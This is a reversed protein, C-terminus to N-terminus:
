PAVAQRAEVVKKAYGKSSRTRIPRAASACSRARRRSSAPRWRGARRCRRIAGSTCGARTARRSTSAATAARTASSTTGTRPTCRSGRRRALLVADVARDRGLVSGRRQPGEHRGRIGQAVDSVRRDGDAHGQRGVVGADRLGATTARSRSSSRRTSISTSGASTRASRRRRRRRRSCACTPRRGDVRGRRHSVRDAQRGQRDATELIPVSRARRSSACARRAPRSRPVDVGALMGGRPWVFAIPVASGTDDGLRTAASARRCTSAHDGVALVYETTRRRSRGTCRATSPSARRVPARQALRRDARGRGHAAAEARRTMPRADGAGEQKTRRAEEERAERARLDDREARHGQRLHRARDRRSRAAPGGPRVAAEDSPKVYDGCIWGRPEIEIWPKDCGKGTQPARGASARTSRSRASASATTAPSSGCASPACSSSRARARPFTPRRGAARGRGRPAPPPQARRRRAARAAKSRAAVRRGAILLSAAGRACARQAYCAGSVGVHRPAM